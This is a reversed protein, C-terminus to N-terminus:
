FNLDPALTDVESATVSINGEDMQQAEELSEFARETGLVLREDGKVLVCQEAQISSVRYGDIVDGVRVINSRGRSKIVAAPEQAIVTCSLRLKGQSEPTETFGLSALLRRAYIVQSLDLPDRNSEFNYNLRAQLDAELTEVTERLQPDESGLAAKTMAEHYQRVQKGMRYANFGEYGALILLLIILISWLLRERERM